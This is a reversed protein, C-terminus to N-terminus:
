CNRTDSTFVKLKLSVKKSDSKSCPIQSAKSIYIEFYTLGLFPFAGMPFIERSMIWGASSTVQMSNREGGSERECEGGVYM